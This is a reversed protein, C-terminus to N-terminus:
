KKDDDDDDDDIQNNTNDDRCVLDHFGLVLLGNEQGATDAFGNQFERKHQRQQQEPSFWQIHYYVTIM